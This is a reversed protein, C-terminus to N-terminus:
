SKKKLIIMEELLNFIKKYREKLAAYQTAEYYSKIFELDLSYTVSNKSRDIVTERHLSIDKEPFTVTINEPVGDVFYGDPIKITAKINLVRNYGFNIDSFRNDGIFPNTNSEKFLNVPLFRYEGTGTLTTNFSFKETLPLSDGETNLLQFQTIAIANNEQQYYREKFKATDGDHEKLKKIRAYGFNMINANGNINGDDTVQIDLNLQQKYQLTDPTVTILEGSLRDILFTTTNLISEPFYNVPTYKDTADLIYKTGKIEVCAFVSNFQGAYAYATDVKGNFRQSVLLPYTKLQVKNLLNVLVLNIDGSSGSRNKWANNVGDPSFKNYEKNWTMYKRVTYYILQMKEMDSSLRKAKSVISDVGDIRAVIQSGFGNVFLLLTNLLPWSPYFPEVQSSGWRSNNEGIWINVRQVYDNKADMYPEKENTLAPINRMEFFIRDKEPLVTIELDPRKIVQYRFSKNYLMKLHYRSTMVPIDEQFYWDRLGWYNKMVSQYQYEIISGAKVAPFTFNIQGIIENIRSTYFSKKTVQQKLMKGENSINLTIAELNIIREFNNIRLFPLTINAANTGSAKLIKIRIHHTTILQQGDESYSFAEHILVVAGASKDFSCEKMDLEETSPMGFDPYDQAYASSFIFLSFCYFLKRM